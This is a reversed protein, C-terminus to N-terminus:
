DRHLVCWRATVCIGFATLRSRFWNVHKARTGRMCVDGRERTGDGRRSATGNASASACERRCDAGQTPCRAADRQRRKCPLRRRQPTHPITPRRTLYSRILRNTTRVLVRRTASAVGSLVFPPFSSDCSPLFSCHDLSTWGKTLELTRCVATCGRAASGLCM